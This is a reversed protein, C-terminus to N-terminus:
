IPAFQETKGGTGKKQSVGKLDSRPQVKHSGHSGYEKEGPSYQGLIRESVLGM